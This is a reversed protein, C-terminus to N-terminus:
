APKGPRWIPALQAELPSGAPAAALAARVILRALYTRLTAM